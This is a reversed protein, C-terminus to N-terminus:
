VEWRNARLVSLDPGCDPPGVDNQYPTRYKEGGRQRGGWKSVYLQNNRQHTRTNQEAGNAENKWSQGSGHSSGTRHHHYWPVGELQCRYEYDCDENYIPYFSADFWGVTQICQANIGFLRWDGDIGVWRPGPKAMEESVYRIAGPAVITDANAVLCWDDTVLASRIIENWSGACGLNRFPQVLWADDPLWDWDEIAGESNDIVLLRAEDGVSDVLARLPETPRLVPVGLLPRAVM